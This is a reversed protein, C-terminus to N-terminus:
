LGMRFLVRRWLPWQLWPANVYKPLSSEPLHGASYVCEGGLNMVAKSVYAQVLTSPELLINAVDDDIEISDIAKTSGLQHRIEAEIARAPPPERKFRAQILVLGM